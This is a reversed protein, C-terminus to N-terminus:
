APVPQFADFTRGQLNLSGPRIKIREFTLAWVWPNAKWSEAGNIKHWLEQFVFRASETGRGDRYTRTTFGEALADGESIDQVRQVRVEKLRLVMRCVIALMHINPVFGNRSLFRPSVKDRIGDIAEVHDGARYRVMLADGADDEWSASWAERAWLYDGPQGYPCYRGILDFLPVSAGGCCSKPGLRIRRNDDRRWSYCTGRPHSKAKPQPDITRRTQSKRGEWAALAMPDTFLLPGIRPATIVPM